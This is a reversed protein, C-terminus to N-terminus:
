GHGHVHEGPVHPQFLTQERKWEPVKWDLERYFHVRPFTRKVRYVCSMKMLSFTLKEAMKIAVLSAKGGVTMSDFANCSAVHAPHFFFLTPHLVCYNTQSIRHFFLSYRNYTSLNMCPIISLKFLGPSNVPFAHFYPGVQKLKVVFLLLLM